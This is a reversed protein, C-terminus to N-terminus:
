RDKSEDTSDETADASEDQKAQKGGKLGDRYRSLMSKIEKPDRSPAAVPRGQGVPVQSAGRKRRKLGADGSSDSSLLSDVGNDFAEGTPIADTLKEPPDIIRPPADPTVEPPTWVPDEDVADAVESEEATSDEAVPDDADPDDEVEADDDETSIDADVEIEDESKDELDSDADAELETDASSDAEAEADADVKDEAEAELDTEDEADADANADADDDSEVESEVEADTEVEAEIEVDTEADAEDTDSEAEEDGGRTPLASSTKDDPAFPSSAAWDSDVDADPLEITAGNADGSELSEDSIGLLKELAPSASQAAEAPSASETRSRATTPAPETRNRFVSTPVSVVAETGSRGNLALTVTAGLREALRGIVMFGLSRGMTLGLEPPNALVANAEALKEMPMGMGQDRISILFHDESDFEGTVSVPTDPPSFQTANEMLEAVLHALDMATGADVTGEDIEDLEISEYNEVEGMAVRLVDAVEVPGGRRRGPDAEALVKLSEANRRMRTALHDVKFLEGLRDPDEESGELRDLYEVQRDLLTQSRRALNVVINSLAKKVESNRSEGAEATIANITNISASLRALEDRGDIALQPLDAASIEGAALKRHAEALDSVEDTLESITTQISRGIVFAVGSAVVLGCLAFIGYPTTGSGELFLLLGAAVVAVVLIPIAAIAVLRDQLKLQRVM